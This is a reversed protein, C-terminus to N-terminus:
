CVLREGGVTLGFPVMGGLFASRSCGYFSYRYKSGGLTTGIRWHIHTHHHTNQQSAPLSPTGADFQIGGLGCLKEFAPENQTVDAWGLRAGAAAPGDVALMHVTTTTLRGM